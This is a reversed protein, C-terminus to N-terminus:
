NDSLCVVIGYDSLDVYRGSFQIADKANEEQVKEDLWTPNAEKIERFRCVDSWKCKSHDGCHHTVIAYIRQLCKHRDSTNGIRTKYENLASRIDVIFAKIRTNELLNKGAFSSDKKRINYLSSSCNKMCHGVDPVYDALHDSLPGILRNQERIFGTPGILHCCM